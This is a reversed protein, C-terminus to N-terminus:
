SSSVDTVGQDTTSLIGCERMANGVAEVQAQLQQATSEVWMHYEEGDWPGSRWDLEAWAWLRSLVVFYMRNVEVQVAPYRSAFEIIKDYDKLPADPM